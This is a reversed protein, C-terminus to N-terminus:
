MGAGVLGPTLAAGAALGLLAATVMGTGARRWPLMKEVAILLAILAMWPVSMLGLAVLGAMLAWCCGVCWAGHELGMRLAGRHGNRWSHVVFGMPGQCKRLCAQKWPTVEYVAAATLTGAVLWRANDHWFMPDALDGVVPLAAVALGIASWALLYGAVFLATGGRAAPMQRAVRGRQVSVFTAVMPAVSPFMMAAMMVVWTVLFLGVSSWGPAAPAMADGPMPSSAAATVIWAAAAAVLLTAYTAVRWSLFPDARWHYTRLTSTQGM